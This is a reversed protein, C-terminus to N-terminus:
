LIEEIINKLIETYSKETPKVFYSTKQILKKRFGNDKSQNILELISNWLGGIEKCIIPDVIDYFETFQTRNSAVYFHKNTKITDDSLYVAIPVGFMAAELLITSLPSILGDISRLVINTYEYKMLETNFPKGKWISNYNEKSYPDMIVHSFGYDYFYKEDKHFDKWPHPRFLIKLEIKESKIMEDIVQLHRMENLGKSSGGYCILPSRSEVNILKRYERKTVKPNKRYVQFQAAGSCVINEEALDLYKIAHKKTQEGWVFLKDPCDILNAKASPNDWSNMLYITPINDKKGLRIIDNVFLGELVTPHLLLDIGHSRIMENLCKNEGLQNIKYLKYFPYVFWSSKIWDKLFSRRGLMAKYFGLMVKKDIGTRKRIVKLARVHYFRRMRHARAADVEVLHTIDLGLTSIDTIVRKNNKPFIYHLEYTQGLADLINNRVFHRITIDNDIVIGIKKM